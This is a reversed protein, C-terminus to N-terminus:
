GRCNQAHHVLEHSLSRLIDKPHRGDVYLAIQMNNPDYNATKGFPNLSNEEDSILLITVPQDFGLRKQAYPFFDSAIQTMQAMDKGTKNVIDCSM